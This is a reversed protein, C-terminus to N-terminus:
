CVLIKNVMPLTSGNVDGKCLGQQLSRKWRCALLMLQKMKLELLPGRQRIARELKLYKIIPLYTKTQRPYLAGM